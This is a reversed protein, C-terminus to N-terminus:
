NIVVAGDDDVVAEVTLILSLVIFFRFCSIVYCAEVMRTEIESM